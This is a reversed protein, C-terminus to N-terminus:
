TVGPLKLVTRTVGALRETPGSLDVICFRRPSLKDVRKLCNASIYLLVVGLLEGHRSLSSHAAKPTFIRELPTSNGSTMRLRLGSRIICLFISACVLRLKNGPYYLSVSDPHFLPDRSHYFIVAETEPM